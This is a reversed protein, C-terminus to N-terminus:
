KLFMDAWKDYPLVIYVWDEILLESELAEAIEKIQNKKLNSRVDGSCLPTIISNRTGNYYWNIPLMPGDMLLKTCDKKNEFLELFDEIVFVRDYVKNVAIQIFTPTGDNNYKKAFRTLMVSDFDCSTEDQELCTRMILSPTVIPVKNISVVILM